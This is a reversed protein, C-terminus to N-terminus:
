RPFVVTVVTAQMPTHSPQTDMESNEVGDACHLGMHGM